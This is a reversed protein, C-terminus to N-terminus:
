SGGWGGVGGWGGTITGKNEITVGDGSIGSGGKSGDNGKGGDGGDGGTIEVGSAVHAKNLSEDKGTPTLNIAAAGATGAMGATGTSDTLETVFGNGPLTINQTDASVPYTSSLLLTTCIISSVVSDKKRARSLESVVVWARRSVNWVLKYIANM